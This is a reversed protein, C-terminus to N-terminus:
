ERNQESAVFFRWPVTMSNGELTVTAELKEGTASPCPVVASVGWGTNSSQEAVTVPGDPFGDCTGSPLM